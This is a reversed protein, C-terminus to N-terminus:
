SVDVAKLRYRTGPGKPQDWGHLHLTWGAERVAPLLPSDAIKRARSSLNGRSTVQVAMTEAGRLALLDFMGFLDRRTSTHPIWREVVDVTWGDDTLQRQSLNTLSAKL